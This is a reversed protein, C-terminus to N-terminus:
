APVAQALAPERTLEGAKRFIRFAARAGAIAALEDSPDVTELLALLHRWPARDKGGRLYATPLGAPVRQLIVTGGLRSGELVYAMGIAEARSVAPAAKLAQPPNRDLGALDSELAHWRTLWPQWALGASLARGIAPFARAHAELFAAYSDPFAALSAAFSDETRCHDDATAARLRARFDQM